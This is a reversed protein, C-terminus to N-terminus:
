VLDFKCVCGTGGCNCDSCNSYNFWSFTNGKTKM